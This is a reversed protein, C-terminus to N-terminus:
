NICGINFINVHFSLIYLNWLICTGGQQIHPFQSLLPELPPAAFRFTGPEEQSHTLTDKLLVSLGRFHEWIAPQDKYPNGAMLTPIQGEMFAHHEASAIHM